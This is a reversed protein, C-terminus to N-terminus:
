SVRRSLEPCADHVWQLAHPDRKHHLALWRMLQRKPLFRSETTRNYRQFSSPQLLTAKQLFRSFSLFAFILIAYLILLSTDLNVISQTFSQLGSMHHFVLAFTGGIPPCNDGSLLSIPCSHQGGHNLGFFGLVGVTLLSFILLIPLIRLRM